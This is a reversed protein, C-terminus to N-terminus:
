RHKLSELLISGSSHVAPGSTLLHRPADSRDKMFWVPPRQNSQCSFQMATHNSPGSATMMTVSPFCFRARKWKEKRVRNFCYPFPVKKLLIALIWLDSNINWLLQHECMNNFMFCSNLHFYFLRILPALQSRMVRQSVYSGTLAQKCICKRWCALYWQLTVLAWAGATKSFLSWAGQSQSTQLALEFM